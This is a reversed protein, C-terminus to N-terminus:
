SGSRQGLSKPIRVRTVARRIWVVIQITNVFLFILLWAKFLADTMEHAFIRWGFVAWYLLAVFCVWLGFRVAETSTRWGENRAVAALLVLRVAMLAVLSPLLLRRFNDDYLAWSANSGAPLLHSLFWAPAVFFITLVAGLPAASMAARRETAEPEGPRWHPRSPIWFIWHTWSRSSSDADVPSRRRAWGAIGFWVVLAGVWALAGFGWRLWWDGFTMRASFVLPLTVAWQIVVCLTALMAFAPAHEPEILQFGRPAYRAAVEDPRGFASVIAMAMESDPPRGAEEAASQLQENLLTRLELAVDNRLRRPLKTGVSNVYDEIITQADV